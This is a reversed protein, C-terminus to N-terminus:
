YLVFKFHGPLALRRDRHLVSLMGTKWSQQLAAQIGPITNLLSTSMRNEFHSQKVQRINIKAATDGAYAWGKDVASVNITEGDAYTIV